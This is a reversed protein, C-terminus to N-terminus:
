VEGGESWDAVEPVFEENDLVDECKKAENDADHKM